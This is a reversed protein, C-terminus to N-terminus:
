SLLSMKENFNLRDKRDDYRCNYIILPIIDKFNYHLLINIHASIYQCIRVLSLVYQKGKRLKNLIGNCITVQFLLIFILTMYVIALVREKTLSQTQYILNQLQFCSKWCKFISEIRWRLCYTQAVENATLTQKDETTIFIKYSLLKFYEQNHNLRQDRDHRAKRRRANAQDSTLPIAILRVKSKKKRGILVWQDFSKKKKIEKLLNLEEGSILDYIKVGYRMRSIFHIGRKSLEEFCELVFYGLDRIVLDENTALSLIDRAKSQDNSTFSTIEFHVFRCSLLDYVVQIKLQAKQQGRSVNGPFYRSLWIPLALVTSDQLLIRKYNKLASSGGFKSKDLAIQKGLSEQLVASLFNTLLPTVKKWIAQKSIMKGTILSVQEAWYQYTNRGHLSMLIFGILLDKGKIKREKRQKFGSRVALKNFSIHQLKKVISNLSNFKKNEKNKSCTSKSTM